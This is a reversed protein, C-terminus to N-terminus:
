YTDAEAFLANMLPIAENVTNDWEGNGFLIVGETSTPSFFMNTNIGFDDGGHGWLDRSAFDATEYWILGQAVDTKDLTTQQSLMLAVTSPQLIQQGNYSGGNAYMTLFQALQNVSTKMMGDPYDAEGYLGYADGNEVSYPMALTARNIGSYFYSTNTMGLPTFIHQTVYENFDQGSLVQVLYGLLTAGFNSYQYQTNPCTKYFNGTKSYYAGGPVFYGRVLSDLPVPSDGQVTLNDMVTYNDQIGSTHTLLERFTIPTGPCSPITVQFPLYNNIPDDLQFKGQEYLQLLATAVTTKSVSAIGQDTDASYPTGQETEFGGNQILQKGNAVVSVDDLYMGAPTTMPDGPGNSYANFYIRVTKGAYPTLDFTIETWKKTNSSVKFIQALTNGSTDQVQAEQWAYTITNKSFPYYWFTLTATQGAPLTVTQYMNSDGAQAITPAGLLASWSGAHKKAETPSPYFPATSGGGLTWGSLNGDLANGAATTCQVQGHKIIAAGMGTVNFSSLYPTMDTKCTPVAMVIDPLFILGTVLTMMRLLNGSRTKSSLM